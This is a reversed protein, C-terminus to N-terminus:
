DENSYRLTAVADKYNATGFISSGAVLVDAGNKVAIRATKENIGGDVEILLEIGRRDAEKRLISIKEVTEPIFKQGGFGPEVTMILALDIYELYNFLAESPTSPKISLGVKKNETRIKQITMSIDSLSELHFTIIDAGAKAFASVYELPNSIMLHVDYTAKISGALAELVPIGFSINPVFHGDMVDFHIFDAGAAIVETCEAGLNCFDGALISPAIYIRRKEM